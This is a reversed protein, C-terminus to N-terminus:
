VPERQVARRKYLLEFLNGEHPQDWRVRNTPIAGINIRDIHRCDLMAEILDRRESVLSLTLTPGLRAAMESEPVECVAAFPFLYEAKALPHDARECWILTPLLFTCGDCTVLRPGKRYKATMDEAGGEALQAEIRQDLLEALKPNAFAALQAAGDDLPRAQIEALRRALDDALAKGDRPVWVASANVCSRGGNAAIADVLVDMHSERRDVAQGDLVMKSWGPGHIQIRGEGRWADVTRADGFFLARQCRMLIEGAGTHDTPYFGFAEAPFGASIMAQAIRMPTWPEQAGPKLVVPVKMALAPVWLSHVGPSNSPLIAGLADAERRYDRTVRDLDVGRSLGRLIDPMLRLATAIKEMNRECLVRPLGTTASQDALFDDRTQTTGSAEDLPLEAELFLDAARACADILTAMDLAALTKQRAASGLLDRAILGGNAQSVEAVPAGNRIDTLTQRTLSRYPRGARLIPLHKM